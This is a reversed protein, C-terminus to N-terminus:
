NSRAAQRVVRWAELLKPPLILRAAKRASRRLTGASARVHDWEPHRIYRFPRWAVQVGRMGLSQVKKTVSIEAAIAEGYNAGIPFGGIKELVGRRAAWILAQLHDGKPGPAVGWRRFADQYVEMRAVPRGDLEHGPLREDRISAEIEPWPCDWHNPINEGVLGAGPRALARVFARLWGSRAIECDDQLFLYFDAPPGVRWGHDWAGINYGLNERHLVETGRHRDPLELHRDEARNVVVRTRFPWGAPITALQDLLAVLPGTPRANYFSVIVM